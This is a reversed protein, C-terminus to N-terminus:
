GQAISLTGNIVASTTQAHYILELAADDYIRPMGSLIADVAGGIGTLPLPIAAIKRRLVVSFTGSTMSVTNTWKTVARIGTDGSALQSPFCRYIVASASYGIISGSQATNGDQDTYEFTPNNAGAGMAGIIDMWLEVDAGNADPRTLATPSTITQASTSTASLGSNQWLRDYLYLTGPNSASAAFQSLYSYGGGGPNTFPFAGATSDVPVEGATGPAPAAAAGPCGPATWLAFYAGAVTTISGKTINWRKWSSTGGLAAVLSDMTSIAM